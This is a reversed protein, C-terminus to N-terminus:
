VAWEKVALATSICGRGGSGLLRAEEGEEEGNDSGTKPQSTHANNDIPPQRLGGFLKNM